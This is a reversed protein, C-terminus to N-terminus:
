FHRTRLMLQLLAGLTFLALAEALYGTAAAVAFAALHLSRDKWFAALSREGETALYRALGIALLPLAIRTVPEPSVGNALVVTVAALLDVGVMVGFMVGRGKDVAWLAKRLENWAEGFAAAFAGCAALGLGWAGQGLSALVVGGLMLIGAALISAESASGLWHPAIRRVISAALARAPGTWSHAPAHRRVLAREREDLATDTSALIWRGKDLAAPPLEHCEVRAQLGLRLLLSMAESDPPLEAIKHVQSARMVALGAWNRDRDIREIDEPHERALANDAPITAIGKRLASNAESQFETHAIVTARDPILGDLLMVLEDEARVLSALQINSKIAHFKGGEAEVRRQMALVESSPTECLCVIRECGLDRMLSVQWALVSRGGLSLEARLQGTPTRKVAALLATRM